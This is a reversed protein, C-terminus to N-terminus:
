LTEVKEDEMLKKVLFDTLEQVTQLVLVEKINIRIDFSDEAESILSVTDFSNLCLDKALLSAPGIGKFIEDEVYNELLSLLKQYVEDPNTLAEKSM